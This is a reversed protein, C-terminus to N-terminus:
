GSPPLEGGYARRFMWESVRSFPGVGPYVFFIKATPRPVIRRAVVLWVAAGALMLFPISVIIFSAGAVIEVGTPKPWMRKLLLGIVTVGVVMPALTFLLLSGYAIPHKRQADIVQKPLM